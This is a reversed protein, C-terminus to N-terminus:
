SVSEGNGLEVLKEDAKARKEEVEGRRRDYVFTSDLLNGCMGVCCCLLAVYPRSTLM